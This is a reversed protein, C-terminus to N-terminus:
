VKRSALISTIQAILKRAVGIVHHGKLERVAGKMRADHLKVKETALIEKLEIDTKNKLDAFDM